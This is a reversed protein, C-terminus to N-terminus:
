QNTKTISVSQTRQSVHVSDEHVIYM